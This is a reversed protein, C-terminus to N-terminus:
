NSVHQFSSTASVSLNRFSPQMAPEIVDSAAMVYPMKCDKSSNEQMVQRHLAEERRCILSSLFFASYTYVLRSNACASAPPQHGQISNLARRLLVRLQTDKDGEIKISHLYCISLPHTHQSISRSVLLGLLTTLTSQLTVRITM